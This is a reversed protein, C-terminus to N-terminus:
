QRHVSAHVRHSRGHRHAHVGSEPNRAIAGAALLVGALADFGSAHGYGELADLSPEPSIGTAIAEIARHVPEVAEGACAADLHAASLRTTRHPAHRAVLSAVSAAASRQGLAHLAVLIGVVCDDGSPTLGGGTGLLDTIPMSDSAGRGSLMGELWRSLAPVARAFNAAMAGPVTSVGSPPSSRELQSVLVHTLVEGRPTRAALAARMSALGQPLAFPSEPQLSVPTWVRSPSIPFSGLREVVLTIGDTRWAAGQLEPTGSRFGPVVVNLPGRYTSPPVLCAIGAASEVYLSSEFAAVVSGHGAQLVGSARRGVHVVAPHPTERAGAISEDARRM